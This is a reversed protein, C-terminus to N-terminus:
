TRLIRDDGVRLTIKQTDLWELLPLVYRRSSQLLDRAEAVTIKRQQALHRRIQTLAEEYAARGFATDENVRVIRGTAALYQVVASTLQHRQILEPLPPPTFPAAELDRVAADVAAQQHPSLSPQHGPLAVEGSRDVIVGDQAMRALVDPFISQPIGARSKLEERSMGARLPHAGHFAALAASARKVLSNWGERGLVAGGIEVVAGEARLRDVIADIQGADVAFRRALEPRRVGFPHKALELAISIAPDEAERQALDKLTTPDRRRHRRPSIDVIIGGALTTPPAPQRLIFRDGPLAAVPETSYLQAWGKARPPLDDAELLIVEVPLEATGQYLLLRDRHRVPHPAEELVTVRADIRRTLTLHGAPALVDGRKVERRDIGALNVATRSGPRAEDVNRNHQQLGRIRVRRRAPLVELEDGVRFRGGILTGTVVTGFGPMAFSRDVPLRPRGIDPRPLAMALEQDLAELLAKLGQRTTSSLPVIPKEALRTGRVVARVDESVLQLWDDDVLDVKTLAIVGHDIGLLDVIALHERTQPMPGEDAAVVFLVADIGHVGALMNKLFRQHGPVDVIGVHRGSPLDMYAFGLDITMGRRKEEDLRDPDIGTLARVLTSKGHDIHGATGVVFSGPPTPDTM